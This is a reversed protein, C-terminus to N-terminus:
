AHPDIIITPDKDRGSTVDHITYKSPGLPANQMAKGWAHGGQHDKNELVGSDITLEDNGSVFFFHVWQGHEVHIPDPSAALTTADICVIPANGSGPCQNAVRSQEYFAGHRCSTLVLVLVALSIRRM